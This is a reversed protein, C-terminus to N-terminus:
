VSLCIWMQALGLGQMTANQLQLSGSDGLVGM